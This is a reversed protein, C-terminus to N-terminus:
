TRTRLQERCDYVKGFAEVINDMDQRTGLLINQYLWAGESRSIRECVPLNLDKYDTQGDRPVAGSYPGFRHNLYLPQRYLPVAYGPSAPVGEAELAELFKAWPFGFAKEFDFGIWGRALNMPEEVPGKPGIVCPVGLSIVDYKWGDAQVKVQEVLRTPTLDPGSDFRRIDDHGSALLKVSSGGVDITLINM